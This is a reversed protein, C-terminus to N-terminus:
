IIKRIHQYLVKKHKNIGKYKQIGMAMPLQSHDTLEELTNKGKTSLILGSM